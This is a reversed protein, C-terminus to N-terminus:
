SPSRTPRRASGRRTRRRRTCGRRSSTSGAIAAAAATDRTRRPSAPARTTAPSPHPPRLTRFISNRILAELSARQRLTDDCAPGHPTARPRPRAVCWDHLAGSLVEGAKGPDLAQDLIALEEQKAALLEDIKARATPLFHEIRGVLLTVCRRVLNETGLKDTKLLRAYAPQEAFWNEEKQRAQRLSKGEAINKQSRNIVGVYGLKLTPMDTSRGALIDAADTGEDMIDLKTLVGLM